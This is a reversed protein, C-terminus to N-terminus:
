LFAVYQPTSYRQCAATSCPNVSLCLPGVILHFSIESWLAPSEPQIHGITRFTNWWDWPSKWVYRSQDSPRMATPQLWPSGLNFARPLVVSTDFLPRHTCSADHAWVCNKSDDILIRAIFPTWAVHQITLLPSDPNHCGTQRDKKTKVNQGRDLNIGWHQTQIYSM